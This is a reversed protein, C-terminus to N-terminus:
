SEGRIKNLEQQTFDYESLIVSMENGHYMHKAAQWDTIKCNANIQMFGPYTEAVM